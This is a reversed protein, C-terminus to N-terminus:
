EPAPDRSLRVQFLRAIEIGRCTNRNGDWGREEPKGIVKLHLDIVRRLRGPEGM